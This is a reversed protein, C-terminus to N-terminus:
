GVIDFSKEYDILDVETKDISEIRIFRQNQLEYIFRDINEEEGQVYSEVDYSYLNKVNGTLNLRDAIMKATFRFGVGQVRGKFLLKYRKM